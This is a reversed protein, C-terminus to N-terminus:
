RGLSQQCAQPFTSRDADGYSQLYVTSSISYGGCNCGGGGAMGWDWTAKKGPNSAAAQSECLTKFSASDTAIGSGSTGSGGSAPQSSTTPIQTTAAPTTTSTPTSPITSTSSSANSGFGYAELNQGGSSDDNPDLAQFQANAGAAILNNGANVAYVTGTGNNKLLPTGDRADTGMTWESGNPGNAINSGFGQASFGSGTSMGIWPDAGGGSAPAGGAAPSSQDVGNAAATAPPLVALSQTVAAALQAPAIADPQPPQTQQVGMVVPNQVVSAAPPPTAPPTSPTVPATIVAPNPTVSGAVPTPVVPLAPPTGSSTAPPPTTAPAAPVTNDITAPTAPPTPPVASDVKGFIQDVAEQAHKHLINTADSQFQTIAANAANSGATGLESAAGVVHDQLVGGAQDATDIGNIIIEPLRARIAQNWSKSAFWRSIANEALGLTGPQGSAADKLEDGIQGVTGLLSDVMSDFMTYTNPFTDRMLLHTNALAANADASGPNALAAYAKTTDYPAWSNCFYSDFAEAMVYDEFRVRLEADGGAAFRTGAYLSEVSLSSQYSATNARVTNLGDPGLYAGVTYLMSPVAMDIADFVFRAALDARFRRLGPDRNLDLIFTGDSPVLSGLYQVVFYGMERILSSQLIAPDPKMYVALQHGNKGDSNVGALVICSTLTSTDAPPSSLEASCIDPTRDSFVIHLGSYYAAADVEAPLATLVSAALQALADKSAQAQSGDFALRQTLLRPSSTGQANASCQELHLDSGAAFNELSQVQSGTTHKCSPLGALCGIM